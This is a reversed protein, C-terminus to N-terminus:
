VSRVMYKCTHQIYLCALHTNNYLVAPQRTGWFGIKLFSTKHKTCRAESHWCLLRSILVSCTQSKNKGCWPICVVPFRSKGRSRCLPKRGSGWFTQTRARSTLRYGLPPCGSSRWCGMQPLGRRRHAHYNHTLTVQLLCNKMKNAHMNKNKSNKGNESEGEPPSSRASSMCSWLAFEPRRTCSSDQRPATRSGCRGRSGTPSWLGLERWPGCRCAQPPRINQVSTSPLRSRSSSTLLSYRLTQPLTVFSFHSKGYAPFLLKYKKNISCGRFSPSFLLRTFRVTANQTVGLSKFSDIPHKEWVKPYFLVFLSKSVKAQQFVLHVLHCKRFM